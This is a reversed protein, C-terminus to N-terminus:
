SAVGSERLRLVLHELALTTNVNRGLAAQADDVARLRQFLARPGLSRAESRAAEPLDRNILRGTDLGEAVLLQDRFWIRLSDLAGQLELRDKGSATAAQFLGVADDSRAAALLGELTARIAEVQESGLLALARGASGGALAAATERSAPDGVQRAELIRQIVAEALPLFRVRQCRSVLTPIVRHTAAACLVFLTRPRPEEVSKLLANGANPNMLEAGDIVVVRWRGEHPAFGLHEELARVQDVKISAGDPVLTMLDPHLDADIKRCSACSSCGEGPADLCNLAGALARAASAKGVGAPGGFLYAQALKGAAISRRLVQLAADQGQIESLRPL